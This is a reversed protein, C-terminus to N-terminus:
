KILLMHRISQYDGAKLRYFYIGSSFGVANWTVSYHGPQQEESVLRTVQQGIVNYITLDVHQLSSEYNAGITYEITTKPNFPNPYNQNLSYHEPINMMTNSIATTGTYFTQEDAWASGAFNNDITQVSWFYHTDPQLNKIKWSHNQNVNGLQVVTRYGNSGAMPSMIDTGGPTTGIRLNYTLGPSPTEADSAADWSLFVSTDTAAAALNGPANPLTNPTSFNNRYIRNSNDNARILIDLDGDNDYDGWQSTYGSSIDSDIENFISDDWSFIRNDSLIDLDGDNDYDGWSLDGYTRIETNTNTFTSDDNRFVYTQGDSGVIVDLDGDMDYDGWGANADHWSSGLYFNTDTFTTDDNRYITNDNDGTVLIDLDGDNDYDGWDVSGYENGRISAGIDAFGADNYVQNRYIRTITGNTPVQGALLVDQAGDNNYDGWAVSAGYVKELNANIDTFGSTTGFNNRFIKSGNTNAVLIDLFNDNNYDGWVVESSSGDLGLSNNIHTFKDTDNRYIELGGTTLSLIDLDGDNDYDGWVSSQISIESPIRIMESFLPHKVVADGVMDGDYAPSSLDRIDDTGDGNVGLDEAKDFRWYGVLGSDSTAYYVPPLTDNMTSQIQAQSRVTNWIRFEDISGDFSYSSTSDIYRAGIATNIKPDIFDGYTKPLINGTSPNATLIQEEGDIFVRYDSGTAVIAYHHWDFDAYGDDIVSYFNTNSTGGISKIINLRENDLSGTHAGYTLEFYESGSELLPNNDSVFWIIGVKYHYDFNANLWFEITVPGDFILSDAYNSLQLYDGNGDLKLFGGPPKQAYLLTNLLIFLGTLM